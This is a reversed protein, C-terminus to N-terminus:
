LVTRTQERRIDTTLQVLCVAASSACARGGGGDTARWPRPRTVAKAVRVSEVQARARWYLQARSYFNTARYWRDRGDQEMVLIGNNPDAAMEAFAPKTVTASMTLIRIARSGSNMTACFRWLQALITLGAMRFTVHDSKTMAGSMTWTALAM